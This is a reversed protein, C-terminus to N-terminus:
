GLERWLEVVADAAGDWTYSRARELGAPALEDRRSIAEHIGTAIASASLPDVLVAVDRAVEEMATGRSTV